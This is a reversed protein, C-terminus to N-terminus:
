EQNKTKLSRPDKWSKSHIVSGTPFDSVLYKIGGCSVILKDECLINNSDNNCVASTYIQFDKKSETNSKLLTIMSILLFAMLILLVREVNIRFRM